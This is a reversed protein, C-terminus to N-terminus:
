AKAESIYFNVTRVAAYFRQHELSLNVPEEQGKGGGYPSEKFLNFSSSRKRQM